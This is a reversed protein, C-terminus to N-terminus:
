REKLASRLTRIHEPGIGCCGGIISAGQKVWSKAFAAYDEPSPNKRVPQLTVNAQAGRAQSPFANAYVGIPLHQNCHEMEKLSIRIADEMVEPQSCNFLVAEAGNGAAYRVAETVAEGSRLRPTDRSSSPADDLTFSLWVPRSDEALAKMVAEAEAILSLTEALWIDAYPSLATILITLISQAKEPLFLDPRYSGFLPPLSAAVKCGHKQAVEYALRGSLDALSSGNSCFRSEGIHFPVLAYSNTTLIDSGARAFNRHVQRVSEPSEMLALASWEPQRFPAGMRLLERGIGGDLITISDKPCTKKM